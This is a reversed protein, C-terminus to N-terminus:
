KTPCARYKLLNKQPIEQTCGVIIKLADFDTSIHDKLMYIGMPGFTHEAVKFWLPLQGFFPAVDSDTTKVAHKELEKASTSYFKDIKM